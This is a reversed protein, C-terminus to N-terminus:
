LGFGKKRTVSTKDFIYTKGLARHGIDLHTIQFKQGTDKGTRLKRKARSEGNLLRIKYHRIIWQLLQSFPRRCVNDIWSDKSISFSTSQLMIISRAKNSGRPALWGCSVVTQFWASLPFFQFNLFPLIWQAQSNPILNNCLIWKMCKQLSAM